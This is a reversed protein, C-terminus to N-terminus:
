PTGYKKRLLKNRKCSPKDPEADEVHNHEQNAEDPGQQFLEIEVCWGDGPLKGHRDSGGDPYRSVLFEHLFDSIKKLTYNNDITLRQQSHRLLTYYTYTTLQQHCVLVFSEDDPLILSVPADAAWVRFSPHTCVM